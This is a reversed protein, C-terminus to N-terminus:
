AADRVGANRLVTRRPGERNVAENRRKTDERTGATPMLECECNSGCQTAGSGPLGLARWEELTHQQGHIEECSRCSKRLKAMWQLVQDEPDRPDEEQMITSRTQRMTAKTTVVAVRATATDIRKALDEQKFNDMPEGRDLDSLYTGMSANVEDDLMKEDITIGFLEGYAILEETSFELLQDLTLDPGQDLKELRRRVASVYERREAPTMSM